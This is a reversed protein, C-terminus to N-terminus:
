EGVKIYNKMQNYLPFIATRNETLFNYESESFQLEVGSATCFFDYKMSVFFEASTPHVNQYRLMWFAKASDIALKYDFVVVENIQALASKVQETLSEIFYTAPNNVPSSPLQMKRAVFYAAAYAVVRGRKSVDLDLLDLQRNLGMEDISAFLM